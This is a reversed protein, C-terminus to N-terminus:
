LILCVTWYGTNRDARWASQGGTEAVKNMSEKIDDVAIVVSPYQAPWDERKVYFGGNIASPRKTGNEESETTM